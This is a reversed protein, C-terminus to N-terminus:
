SGGRRDAEDAPDPESAARAEDKKRQEAEIELVWSLVVAEVEESKRAIKDLRKPEEGVALNRIRALGDRILALRAKTFARKADNSEVGEVFGKVLGAVPGIMAQTKAMDGLICALFGPEGPGPTALPNPRRPGPGPNKTRHRRSM